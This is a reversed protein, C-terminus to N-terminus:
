RKRCNSGTRAARRRPPPCPSAGASGTSSRRRALCRGALPRSSLLVPGVVTVALLLTLVPLLLVTLLSTALTLGPSEEFTRACTDVARGFVLALFLYFGLFAGAILWAWGLHEAVALPRAYAFGHRFWAKLGDLAPMQFVGGGVQNVSRQVVSGPAREVTGLISVM